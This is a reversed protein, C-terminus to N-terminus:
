PADEFNPDRKENFARVGEYRDPHDVMRRYAELELDIGAELSLDVGTRASRKAQELAAPSNRAIRLALALAAQPLESRPHVSNVLGIRLATAADILEGTLLMQLAMGRPIHRPLLQTGGSGPIIGRSVEPQGFRAHEACIIFDTSMAIESGGGAAVGNVAAFIPKRFGRLRRFMAQFVRHQRLWVAPTMGEREKLDAGACFARDGAGTLIVARCTSDEGLEILAADLAHALATSISNMAEPRNLAVVAVASEPRDIKVEDAMGSITSRAVGAKVPLTSM